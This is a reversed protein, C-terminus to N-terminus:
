CCSSLHKLCVLIFEPDNNGADVWKAISKDMMTQTFAFVGRWLSAYLNQEQRPGQLPSPLPSLPFSFPSLYISLPDTNPYSM